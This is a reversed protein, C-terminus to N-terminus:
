TKSVRSRDKWITCSSRGARSMSSSTVTPIEYGAAHIRKIVNPHKEAVWGLCFFTARVGTAALLDLLRDTNREIRPAFNAWQEEARSSPNDLIHFWDEIDFTLINVSSGRPKPWSRSVSRSSRSIM